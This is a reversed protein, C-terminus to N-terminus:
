LDAAFSNDSQRYMHSRIHFSHFTRHCCSAHLVFIVTPARVFSITTVKQRQMPFNSRRQSLVELYTCTIYKCTIILCWTIVSGGQSDDRSRRTAGPIFLVHHIYIGLNIGVNLELAACICITSVSAAHLNGGQMNAMEKAKILRISPIKTGNPLGEYSEIARARVPKNWSERTRACPHVYTITYSGSRSQGLYM